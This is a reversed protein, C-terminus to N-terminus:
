ENPPANNWEFEDNWRLVAARILALLEGEVVPGTARRFEPPIRKTLWRWLTTPRDSPVVTRTAAWLKAQARTWGEADAQRIVSYDGGHQIILRATSPDINQPIRVEGGNQEAGQKLVAWLRAYLHQTPRKIMAVSSILSMAERREPSRPPLANIIEGVIAIIKWANARRDLSLEGVKRIYDEVWAPLM